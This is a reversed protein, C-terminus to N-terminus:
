GLGERLCSIGFFVDFTDLFKALAGGLNRQGRVQNQPQASVKRLRRWPEALLGALVGGFSRWFEM